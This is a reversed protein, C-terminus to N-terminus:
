SSFANITSEGAMSFSDKFWEISAKMAMQRWLPDLLRHDAEAMLLLQKPEGLKSYLALAQNWPITEDQQGHIVLVRSVSKLDDMTVPTGLPFGPPFGGEVLQDGELAIKIRTLDFPTAWCVVAKVQQPGGAAALLALYGGLSSGLLGLCGNAWPQDMVYVLVSELDRMRSHLLSVRLAARTEGCGSFDFRVVAMGLASFREGIAVFKASDRYSLLGHCCVVVPAPVKSPLHVTAAIPGDSTSIEVNQQSTVATKWGVPSTMAGRECATLFANRESPLKTAFLM